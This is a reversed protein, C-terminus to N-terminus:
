RKSRKSRETLDWRFTDPNIMPFDSSMNVQSRARRETRSETTINSANVSGWARWSVAEGRQNLDRSTHPIPVVVEKDKHETRTSVLKVMCWIPNRSTPAWTDQFLQGSM